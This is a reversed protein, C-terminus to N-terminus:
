KPVNKVNLQDVHEGNVDSGKAKIWNGPPFDKGDWLELAVRAENTFEYCFRIRYGYKDLGVVLGTTFLFKLIGAIEGSQLEVLDTYGQEELFMKLTENM